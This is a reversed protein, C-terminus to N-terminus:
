QRPDLLAKLKPLWIYALMSAPRDRPVFRLQTYTRELTQWRTKYHEDGCLFDIEKYARKYCDEITMLYLIRGPSLDSYQTIFGTRWDEFRQNYTFGYIYATPQDDICLLFIDLWDQDRMLEFIERQFAREETSRYLHPFHGYENIEFITSIDQWTVDKGIHHELTLRSQEEIKRVKNRIERRVKSPLRNLYGEWEGRVPIYFHPNSKQHTIYGSNEFLPILHNIEPGDCRMENLELVDWLRKRGILYNSVATYIQPDGNQVIFGGVDVDPTGVNCLVRLKLGYKRRVAMMLPAIGVLEDSRWATILWLERDKRYHKWWAFLWEWTYFVDQIPNQPLLKNWPARLNEFAQIDSLLRIEM